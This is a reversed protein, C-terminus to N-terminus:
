LTLSAFRNGLAVSFINRATNGTQSLGFSVARYYASRLRIFFTPVRSFALMIHGSNRRFSLQCNFCFRMCPSHSRRLPIVFLLRLVM